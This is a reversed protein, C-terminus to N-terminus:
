ISRGDYRGIAARIHRLAEAGVMQLTRGGRGYSLQVLVTRTPAALVAKEAWEVLAVARGDDAEDWGLEELRVPAELRYLDIHYLPLRGELRSVLTFSPSRVWQRIGLGAAVGRALTTKGSGLPGVLALVEGGRLAKGLARGLRVTAASSRSFVRVSWSQRALSVGTDM